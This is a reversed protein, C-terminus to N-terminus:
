TLRGSELFKAKAVKPSDCINNEFFSFEVMRGKKLQGSINGETDPLTVDIASIQDSLM